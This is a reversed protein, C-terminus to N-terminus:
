RTQYGSLRGANATGLDYFFGFASRSPLLRAMSANLIEM